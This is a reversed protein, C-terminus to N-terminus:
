SARREPTSAVPLVVVSGHVGSGVARHAAVIESLPLTQAVVPRLVGDALYRAVREIGQSGPFDAAFWARQRGLLSTLMMRLLLSISV